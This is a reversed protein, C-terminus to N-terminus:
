SVGWGAGSTSFPWGLYNRMSVGKEVHNETTDLQCNVEGNNGVCAILRRCGHM